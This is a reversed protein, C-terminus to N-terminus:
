ARGAAQARPRPNDRAACILILIFAWALESALDIETFTRVLIMMSLFMFYGNHLDQQMLWTRLARYVCWFGLFYTAYVGPYGFQVGNELYSNHFSFQTYSKYHFQRLLSNAEGVEPRWFGNAGLGTWPHEDLVREAQAWLMTRGTLTTDKGVSGLLAEFADFRLVGFLVIVVAAVLALGFLALLSRMHPIKRLGSWIMVQVALALSMPISLIVITASEARLMMWFAIPLVPLAMLRFFMPVKNDFLLVVGSTMVLFMSFALVNKQSFVGTAATGHVDPSIASAIAAVANIAFISLIIQRATLQRAVYIGIIATLGLLMGKRIAEPASPAWIASICALVPLLFMPWCTALPKMFSRYRLVMSGSFYAALLYLVATANLPMFTQAFAWLLWAAFDVNRLFKDSLRFTFLGGAGIARHSAIGSRSTDM